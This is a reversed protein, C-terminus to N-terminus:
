VVSKRDVPITIGLSLILWGWSILFLLPTGKPCSLFVCLSESLTAKLKKKKSNQCEKTMQVQLQSKSM